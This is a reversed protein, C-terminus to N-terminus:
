PMATLVDITTSEMRAMIKKQFARESGRQNTM